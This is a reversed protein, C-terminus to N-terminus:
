FIKSKKSINKKLRFVFGCVSDAQPQFNETDSYM